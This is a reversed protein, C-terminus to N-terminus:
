AAARGVRDASHCASAHGPSRELLDPREVPCRAGAYTCRPAFACGPIPADIRPPQGPIPVLM